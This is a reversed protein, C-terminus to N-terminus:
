WECDRAHGRASHSCRGFRKIRSANPWRLPHFPSHCRWHLHTGHRPGCGNWSLRFGATGRSKDDSCAVCFGAPSHCLPRRPRDALAVHPHPAGSPLNRRRRVPPWEWLKRRGEALRAPTGGYRLLSGDGKSGGSHCQRPSPSAPTAATTRCCTNATSSSPLTTFSVRLISTRRVAMRVGRRRCHLDNGIGALHLFTARSSNTVDNTFNAREAIFDHPTDVVARQYTWMPRQTRQSLTTPVSPPRHRTHRRWRGHREQPVPQLHHQISRLRPLVRTRERAPVGALRPVKCRLLM